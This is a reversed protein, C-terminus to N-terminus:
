DRRWSILSAFLVGLYLVSVLFAAVGLVFSGGAGVALPDPVVGDRWLVFFGAAAFLFLAALALDPRKARLGAVGPLLISSIVGVKELRDERAQLVEIRIERLAADTEQPKHFLHHCAGCLETSWIEGDCRACIRRGCRVCGGAHQFRGQIFLGLLVALALAGAAYRPQEGLRGPALTRLVATVMPQGSAAAVMRSRIPAIPFPPDAVFNSDGFHLFEAVTAGNIAQARAMAFEGDEMRFVKAYAQSLDFMLEASEGEGRAGAEYFEIAERTRGAEFSINGLIALAFLDAPADRVIQQLRGAAEENKGLRRARIALTRAVLPDNTRDAELLLALQQPTESGRILALAASALPDANLSMLLKGGAQLSPYLGVLLLAVAGILVARDLARGYVTAIVLFVCAVGLLGEGLVLPIGMVAGLLATRAFAPMRRSVLDGADHAARGFALFGSAFIFVLSGTVLVSALILLLSGVLWVSAELHRPISFFSEGFAGLARGFEGRSWYAAGLATHALPLDPALAVALQRRVLEQDDPEAAILARAPSDLNDAGLALARRRLGLGREELSAGPALWIRELQSRYGASPGETPSDGASVSAPAALREAGMGAGGLLILGMVWFGAWAIRVRRSSAERM